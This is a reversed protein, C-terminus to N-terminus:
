AIRWSANGSVKRALEGFEARIRAENIEIQAM